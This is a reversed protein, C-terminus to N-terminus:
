GRLELAHDGENLDDPREELRQKVVDLKGSACARAVLTQGSSNVHKKHPAMKAPSITSDGTTPAALHRLQVKTDAKSSRTTNSHTV